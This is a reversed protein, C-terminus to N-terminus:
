GWIPTPGSGFFKKGFEWVTVSAILERGMVGRQGKVEEWLRKPSSLSPKALPSPKTKNHKTKSQKTKKKQIKDM